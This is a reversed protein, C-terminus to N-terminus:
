RCDCIRRGDHRRDRGSSARPSPQRRMSTARPRARVGTCSRTRRGVMEKGIVRRDRYEIRATPSGLRSPEPDVCALLPRPASRFRRCSNIQERRVALGLSRDCMKGGELADQMHVSIGAELLQGVFLADRECSTPAVRSALEVIHGFGRRRGHCCFGQALDALELGDLRADAAMRRGVPKGCAPGEGLGITSASFTQSM